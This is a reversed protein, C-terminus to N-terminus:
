NDLSVFTTRMDRSSGTADSQFKYSLEDLGRRVEDDRRAAVGLFRGREGGKLAARLARQVDDREVHAVEVVDMREWLLELGNQSLGSKVIEDVVGSHYTGGGESAGSDVSRSDSKTCGRSLRNPVGREGHVWVREEGGQARVGGRGREDRLDHEREELAAARLLDQVDGARAPADSAHVRVPHLVLPPLHRRIRHALGRQIHKHTRTRKPTSTYASVATTTIYAYLCFTSRGSRTTIM